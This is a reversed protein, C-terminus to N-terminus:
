LKVNLFNRPNKCKRQNKTFTGFIVGLILPGPENKHSGVPGAGPQMGLMREGFLARAQWAYKLYCSFGATLWQANCLVNQTCSMAVYFLYALLAVALYDSGKYLVWWM